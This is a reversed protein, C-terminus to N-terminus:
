QYNISVQMMDRVM